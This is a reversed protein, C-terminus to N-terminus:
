IRLLKARCADWAKMLHVPSVLVSWVTSIWCSQLFSHLNLHKNRHTTQFDREAFITRSVVEDLVEYVNWGEHSVSKYELIDPKMNSIYKNAKIVPRESTPFVKYSTYHLTDQDELRYLIWYWNYLTTIYIWNLIRLSTYSHLTLFM